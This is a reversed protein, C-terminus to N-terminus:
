RRNRSAAQIRARSAALEADPIQPYPGSSVGVPYAAPPPLRLRLNNVQLEQLRQNTQVQTELTTIQNHQAIDRMRALEQQGMLETERMQLAANLSPDIQAAAPGAALLVLLIRLRAM